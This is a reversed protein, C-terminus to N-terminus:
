LIPCGLLNDAFYCNIGKAVWLAPNSDTRQQRYPLKDNGTMERDNESKQKM